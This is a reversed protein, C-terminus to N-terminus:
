IHLVCGRAYYCIVISMNVSVKRRRRKIKGLSIVGGMADSNVTYREQSAIERYIKASERDM